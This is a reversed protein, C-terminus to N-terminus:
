LAQSHDLLRFLRGIRNAPYAAAGAAKPPFGLMSLQSVRPYQLRNPNSHNVRNPSLAVPM